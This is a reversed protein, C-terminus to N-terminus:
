KGRIKTRVKKEPTVDLSEDLPDKDEQNSKVDAHDILKRLTEPDISELISQSTEESIGLIRSLARQGVEIIKPRGLDYCIIMCFVVLMLSPGIAAGIAAGTLLGKEYVSIERGNFM